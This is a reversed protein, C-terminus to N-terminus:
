TINDHCRLCWRWLDEILISDNIQKALISKESCYRMSICINFSYSFRSLSYVFRYLLDSLLSLLLFFFLSHRKKGEMHYLYQTCFLEHNKILSLSNALLIQKFKQGLDFPFRIMIKNTLDMSPLNKTFTIYNLFYTCFTKINGSM